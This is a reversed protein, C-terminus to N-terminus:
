GAGDAGGFFSLHMIWNNVTGGWYPWGVRSEALVRINHRNKDLVVAYALYVTLSLSYRCPVASISPTIFFPPVFSNQPSM